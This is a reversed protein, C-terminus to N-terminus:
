GTGSWRRWSRTSGPGTRGRRLDAPLRRGVDDISVVEDESARLVRLVQGSAAPEDGRLAGAVGVAPSCYGACGRDLASRRVVREGPLGRVHGLPGPMAARRGRDVGPEVGVGPRAAGVPGRSGYRRRGRRRGRSTSGSSSGHLVRRANTDLFAVPREFAFCAVAGATYPGVGPLKALAAVDAPVVGEHESVLIGATRHLAAAARYRGLDGWVGLVDGLSADAMASPTPFRAIIREYFPLTRAVRLQQLMVESVLVAWPDRTHRWPLERGHEGFWEIAADVVASVVEPDVHIPDALPRPTM